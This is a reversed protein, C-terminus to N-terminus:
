ARRIGNSGAIGPAHIRRWLGAFRRGCLQLAMAHEAARVADLFKGGDSFSDPTVNLVGMMLTRSPLELRFTKRRFM